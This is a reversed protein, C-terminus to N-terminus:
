SRSAEHARLAQSRRSSPSRVLMLELDTILTDYRELLALDVEISKRVSLDPFHDSVGDRNAPYALRHTRDPRPRRAQQPDRSEAHPRGALIQM